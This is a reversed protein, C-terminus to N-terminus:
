AGSVGRNLLDGLHCLEHLVNLIQGVLGARGIQPVIGRGSLYDGGLEAVGLGFQLLQASQLGPDIVKLDQHLQRLFLAVGVGEGFSGLVERCQLFRQLVQLDHRQQCPLVVFALGDDGDAGAGAPHISGVERLHQQAHVQAPGFSM